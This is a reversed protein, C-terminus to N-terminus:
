RYLNLLSGAHVIYIIVCMALGGRDAGGREFMDPSFRVDDSLGEFWARLSRDCAAVQAVFRRAKRPSSSGLRRISHPSNLRQIRGAIRCLRAFALFGSLPPSQESPAQLSPTPQQPGHSYQELFDDSMNLPMECHCDEDHVAM